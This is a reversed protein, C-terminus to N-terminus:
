IRGPCWRRCQPRRRRRLRHRRTRERRLPRNGVPLRRPHRRRHRPQGRGRCRCRSKRSIQCAFPRDEHQFALRLRCCYETQHHDPNDYAGDHRNEVHLFRPGIHHHHYEANGGHREHPPAEMASRPRPRTESTLDPGPCRRTPCKRIPAQPRWGKAGDPRAGCLGIGVPANDSWADVIQTYRYLEASNPRWGGQAAITKADHGAKRASTALESRVSHGTLRVPLGATMAARAIIESIAKGLMHTTGITGHKSISRFLAGDVLGAAATWALVARVPCTPPHTGRLVHVTRAGTKGFRITVVLGQEEAVVDTVDLNAFESRRAGLAFGLLVVARDRVGALTDPLAACIERLQPVTVARAQGRGRRVNNEALERVYHAIAVMATGMAVPEVTLGLDRMTMLVGYVRREITAPALEQRVHWAVFGVFAGTTTTAPPIQLEACYRQWARWDAAYARTTEDPRRVYQQAADELDALRQRLAAGSLEVTTGDFDPSTSASAGSSVTAPVVLATSPPVSEVHRNKSALRYEVM